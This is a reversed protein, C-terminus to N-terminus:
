FGLAGLFIDGGERTAGILTIANYSSPPTNNPWRVTETPSAITLAHTDAGDVRIVVKDGQIFNVLNLTRAATLTVAQFDGNSPDVDNSAGLDSTKAVAGAYRSIGGAVTIELTANNRAEVYGLDPGGSMAMGLRSIGIGVGDTGAPYLNLEGADTNESGPAGSAIFKAGDATTQSILSGSGGDLASLDATLDVGVSRALTLINTGSDFSVGTVVGDDAGGGGGVAYSQVGVYKGLFDVWLFETIQFAGGGIRTNGVCLPNNEVDIYTGVDSSLAAMWFRRAEMKEVTLTCAYGATNVYYLCDQQPTFNHPTDPLRITSDVGVPYEGSYSAAARLLSAMARPDPELSVNMIDGNRMQHSNNVDQATGYPGAPGGTSIFEVPVGRLEDDANRNNAAHVRIQLEKQGTAADYYVSEVWVPGELSNSTADLDLTTVYTWAGNIPDTASHIEIDRNRSNKICMYWTGDDAQMLDPELMPTTSVGVNMAIPPGVVMAQAGPTSTISLVECIHPRMTVPTGNTEVDPLQSELSVTMWVADDINHFRPGWIVGVPQTAGPITTDRVGAYQNSGQIQCNIIEPEGLANMFYFSFDYPEGDGATVPVMFQGEQRSWFPQADRGGTKAGGAGRPIPFQNLRRMISSDRGIFLQQETEAQNKFFSGVFLNDPFDGLLRLGDVGFRWFASELGTATADITYSQGYCSVWQGDRLDGRLIAARLKYIDSFEPGIEFAKVGGATVIDPNAETPHAVIYRTNETEPSLITGVTYSDTPDALLAQGTRFAKIMTLEDDPVGADRPEVLQIGTGEANIALVKGATLPVPDIAKFFRLSRRSNRFLEALVSWIRGLEVNFKQVLQGSNLYDQQRWPTLAGDIIIISGEGLPANFTLTANDDFGDNFRASLTWDERPADNVYVALGDTDFLRFDLDFPGASASALTITTSRDSKSVTAM